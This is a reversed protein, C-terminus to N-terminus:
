RRVGEINDPRRAAVGLAADGLYAAQVDPHRTADGPPGDFIVRGSSLVVVRDCVQGVLSVNHEILLMGCGLDDRIRHLAALLAPVEHENLGAAPEDMVLYKPQAAMARALGALRALGHPLGAAEVDARDALGLADLVRAAVEDAERRSAGVGLAGLATNEGVTLRPFLRASQFTRALGLRARRDPGLGGLPDGDLASEGADPTEYGGLINVLTSKGAGNPGLMGVIEGRAVSITVSDLVRLAGFSKAIGTATLAGDPTM